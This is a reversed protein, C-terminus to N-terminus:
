EKCAPVCTGNFTELCSRQCPALSDSAGKRCENQCARLRTTCTQICAQQARLGAIRRRQEELAALQVLAGRKLKMMRNGKEAHIGQPHAELYAKVGDCADSTKPTQCEPVRANKWAAEDRMPGLTTAVSELIKKAEEAHEGQPFQALYADIGDCDSAKKPARCSADDSKKWAARDLRLQEAEERSRTGFRAELRKRSAEITEHFKSISAQMRREAVAFDHYCSTTANIRDLGMYLGSFLEHVEGRLADLRVSIKNLGDAAERVMAAPADSVFDEILKGDRQVSMGILPRSDPSTGLSLTADQGQLAGRIWEVANDNGAGVMSGGWDVDYQFPASAIAEWAEARLYKVENQLGDRRKNDIPQYSVESGYTRREECSAPEGPEPAVRKMCNLRGEATAEQEVCNRLGAARADLSPGCSPPILLSAVTGILLSARLALRTRTTSDNM